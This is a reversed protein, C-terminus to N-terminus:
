KRKIKRRNEEKIYDEHVKGITIRLGDKDQFINIRKVLKIPPTMIKKLVEGDYIEGLKYDNISKRKSKEKKNEMKM